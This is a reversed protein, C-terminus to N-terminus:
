GKERVERGRNKKIERKERRVNIRRREIGENEKKEKGKRMLRGGENKKIIGKIARRKEERMQIDKFDSEGKINEKREGWDNM